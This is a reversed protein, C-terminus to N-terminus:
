IGLENLKAERRVDRKKQNIEKSVDKNVMKLQNILEAHGNIKNILCHM